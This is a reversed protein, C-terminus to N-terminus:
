RSCADRPERVPEGVVQEGLRRERVAARQQERRRHVRRHPLVRRRLRVERQEDLAAGHDHARVVALEGLPEDARPPHGLRLLDRRADLLEEAVLRGAAAREGPLRTSTVAPPVRSGSSATRNRPLREDPRM